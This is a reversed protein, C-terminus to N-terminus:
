SSGEADTAGGPNFQTLDQFSGLDTLAPSVYDRRSDEGEVQDAADERGEESM